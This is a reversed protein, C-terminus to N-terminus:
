KSLWLLQMYTLSTIRRECLPIDMLFIVWKPPINEPRSSWDSVWDASKKLVELEKEGEVAEEESQFYVNSLGQLLWNAGGWPTLNLVVVAATFHYAGFPPVQYVPLREQVVM